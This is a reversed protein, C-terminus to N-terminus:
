LPVRFARGSLLASGARATITKVAICHRVRHTFKPTVTFRRLRLPRRGLERLWPLPHLIQVKPGSYKRCRHNQVMTNCHQVADVLLGDNILHLIFVEMEAFIRISKRNPDEGFWELVRGEADGYRRNILALNWKSTKQGNRSDQISGLCSLIVHQLGDGKCSVKLKAQRPGANVAGGATQSAPTWPRHLHRPRILRNNDLQEIVHASWGAIRSMAFIPTYLPVELGMAHYLRGAPWDLNPFM